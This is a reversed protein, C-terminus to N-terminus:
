VDEATLVCAQQYEPERGFRNAAISHYQTLHIGVYARLRSVACQPVM